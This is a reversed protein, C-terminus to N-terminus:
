RKPILRSEECWAALRGISFGLVEKDRSVLSFEALSARPKSAWTLDVLSRSLTRTYEYARQLSGSRMIM